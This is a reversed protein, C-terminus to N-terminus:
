NNCLRRRCLYLTLFGVVILTVVGDGYLVGHVPDSSPWGCVLPASSSNWCNFKCKGVEVLSSCNPDTFGEPCECSYFDDNLGSLCIGGNQCPNSDCVDATPCLSLFVLNKYFLWWFNRAPQLHPLIKPLWIITFEADKSHSKASEITDKNLLVGGCLQRERIKWETFHSPRLSLENEFSLLLCCKKVKELKLVSLIDVSQMRDGNRYSSAIRFFVGPKPWSWNLVKEWITLRINVHM